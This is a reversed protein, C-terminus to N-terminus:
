WDEKEFRIHNADAIYEIDAMLSPNGCTLIVTSSPDLRKQLEARSIHRPLAPPTARELAATAGTADEGSALIARLEHEEKLPMGFAHRLLNNARGRGLGPDDFDRAAPRSVSPIYVFDFRRSAEIALLERHYALEEYTRNTHVLTYKTGNAGGGQCAEFHLQRIMSVFPALGTGTGVLLVSQFADARKGLTFSGTIRNVYMVEAGPADIEFLSGSLRGVTGHEDKELVLYFELHGNDQSEFPASVISYSHTVPGRKPTGSPDLDPVYRRGNPGVVPRTLRCQERRLAIYQGPEYDPFRSGREPALCFTALVPSLKQWRVVTGVKLDPM